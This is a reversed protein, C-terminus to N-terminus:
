GPTFRDPFHKLLGGSITDAITMAEAFVDDFAKVDAIWDKQLRAAIEEKTLTLHLSLRDLLPKRPIHPSASSLLDAIQEVNDSWRSDHKAFAAADGSRAAGVLDVAILVHEKLLRTLVDGARQGFYPAITAGIDEQNKLLRTAAASADPAGAIAAVLYQRTWVVHDGWLKRLAAELASRPVRAQVTM